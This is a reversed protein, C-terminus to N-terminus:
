DVLFRTTWPPREAVGREIRDTREEDSDDSSGEVEFEYFSLLAGAYLTGGPGKVYLLDPRGVGVVLREGAAHERYATATFAIEEEADTRSLVVDALASAPRATAGPSCTPAVGRNQARAAAELRELTRREVDLIEDIETSLLYHELLRDSTHDLIEVLRSYLRPYPEVLCAVEEIAQLKESKGSTGHREWTNRMLAWGAAATSLEKADWADRQTYEAAGNPAGALLPRLAYLWSWYLNRTWDGYTMDELELDFTEFMRRYVESDFERRDDVLVDRATRSDLLAMIDLMSPLTRLDSRALGYLYPLDPPFRRVLFRMGRLENTEVHSPAIESVRNVLEELLAADALLELDFDEGLVESAITGYDRVTPDGPDGYFFSLPENVREWLELWEGSESHIARVVLLAQRTLDYDGYRGEPLAFAMRGYWTAAMYFRSLREEEAYRGRPRYRSYDEGPGAEDDLPTPGMVPSFVGAEAEEILALEREVLNRVTEPPFYDPDLLSLGVAFYAMNARAAEKVIPDRAMFFQEESLRAMEFSLDALREYLEGSELEGLTRDLIAATGYLVIDATVYPQFGSESLDEYAEVFGPSDGPLVVFGEEQFVTRAWGPLEAQALALGPLALAALAALALRSLAQRLEMLHSHGM